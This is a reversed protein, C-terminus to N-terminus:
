TRRSWLNSFILEAIKSRVSHGLSGNVVDQELDLAENLAPNDLIPWLKTIIERDNGRDDASVRAAARLYFVLETDPGARLAEAVDPSRLLQQLQTITESDQVNDASPLNVWLLAQAQRLARSITARYDM